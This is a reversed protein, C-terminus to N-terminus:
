DVLKTPDPVPMAMTTRRGTRMRMPKTGVKMTMVIKM